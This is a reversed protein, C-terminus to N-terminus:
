QLPSANKKDAKDKDSKDKKDTSNVDRDKKDKDSKDKDSADKKDKDSTGHDNKPQKDNDPKDGPGKDGHVKKGHDQHNESHDKDVNQLRKFQIIEGQSIKGNGNRDLTKLAETLIAKEDPSLKGDGDGDFQIELQASKDGPKNEEATLLVFGFSYFVCCVTLFRLMFDGTSPQRTYHALEQMYTFLAHQSIIESESRPYDTDFATTKQNYSRRTQM